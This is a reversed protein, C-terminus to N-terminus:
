YSVDLRKETASPGTVFARKGAVGRTLGGVGCNHLRCLGFGLSDDQETLQFPLHPCVLRGEMSRMAALCRGYPIGTM